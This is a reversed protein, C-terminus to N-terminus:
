AAIPPEELRRAANIRGSRPLSTFTKADPHEDLRAVIARDLNKIAENLGTLVRVLALM